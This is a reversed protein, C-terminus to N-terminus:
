GAVAGQGLGRRADVARCVFDRHNAALAEEGIAQAIAQASRPEAVPLLLGGKNHIELMLPIAAARDLGLHREFVGVVFDMPTSNDNLFELGTEFGPPCFGPKSLLRTERHFVPTPRQMATRPHPGGRFRHALVAKLVTGDNAVGNADHSPILNVVAVLANFVVLVKFVSAGLATTIRYDAWLWAMAAAMLVMQAIVGAGYVVFLDRTSRPM